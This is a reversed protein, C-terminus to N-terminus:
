TMYHSPHNIIIKPMANWCVRMQAVRSTSNTPAFCKYWMIWAGISCLIYYLSLSTSVNQANSSTIQRLLLRQLHHTFPSTFPMPAVRHSDLFIDTSGVQAGYNGLNASYKNSQNKNSIDVTLHPVDVLLCIPTKKRNGKKSQTQQHTVDSLHPYFLTM